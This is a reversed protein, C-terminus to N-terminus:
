YVNLARAHLPSTVGPPNSLILENRAAPRFLKKQNWQILERLNIWNTPRAENLTREMEHHFATAFVVLSKVVHLDLFFKSKM